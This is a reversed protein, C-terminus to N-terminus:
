KKKHEKESLRKEREAKWEEFERKDEESEFFARTDPPCNQRLCFRQGSRCALGSSRSVFCVAHKHL